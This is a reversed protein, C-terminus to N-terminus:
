HLYLTVTSIYIQTNISYLVNYLNPQISVYSTTINQRLGCYKNKVRQLAKQHEWKNNDNAIRNHVCIKQKSVSDFNSM